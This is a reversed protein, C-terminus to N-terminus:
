NKYGDYCKIEISYISYPVTTQDWFLYWPSKRTIGFDEQNTRILFYRGNTAKRALYIGKAVLPTLSENKKSIATYTTLLIKDTPPNKLMTIPDNNESVKANLLVQKFRSEPINKGASRLMDERMGNLENKETIVILPDGVQKPYTCGTCLMLMAILILLWINKQMKNEMLKLFTFGSQVTIIKQTM